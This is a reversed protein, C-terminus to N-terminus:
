LWPNWYRLTRKLATSAWLEAGGGNPINRDGRNQILDTTVAAPSGTVHCLGPSDAEVAAAEAQQIWPPVVHLNCYANKDRPM